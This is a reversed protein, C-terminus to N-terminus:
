NLDIPIGKTDCVRLCAEWNAGRNPVKLLIRNVGKRLRINVIDEDVTLGRAYLKEHVKKDNLWCIVGDNSGIKFIAARDTPMAIETYAYAAQQKKGFIDAFPIIPYITELNIQQWQAMLTDFVESQTLDIVREPFYSTQEAENNKNPFPGAIWWESIFGTKRSLVKKFPLDIANGMEKMKSLVRNVSYRHQSFKAAEFLLKEALEFDKEAALQFALNLYYNSVEQIFHPKEFLPEIEELSEKSGIIALRNLARKINLTDTDHKLVTHYLNLQTLNEDPIKDALQILSHFAAKRELDTGKEMVNKLEQIFPRDSVNELFEHGIIKANTEDFRSASIIMALWPPLPTEIALYFPSDSIKLQSNEPLSRIEGTQDVMHSLILGKGLDIVHAPGSTWVALKVKEEKLFAVVYDNVGGLSLRGIPLYDRLQDILTKMSVYAPKPRYDWNVTGFNHEANDADQGDDHWDYWISVPIHLALHSLWQRAIYKGQLEDSLSTTSYGWEGSLIPITKKGPRYQEILITLINYEDIATEPSLRANRYPHVSVGDVLDLLGQQFCAELFPIDFSSTAPAVICADNDNKRIVPVVMKCWNMYDNFNSHPKWFHDLNPENWLEWIINKDAYRRALAECFRLYAGRGEDSFPALGKDYLPNGYDIIFLLRINRAELDRILQDHNSFDYQGSEHEVSNWSVDMRVIGIGSQELMLWDNKNGQFFHINVGLGQPVTLMQLAAHTKGSRNGTDRKTHCGQITFFALLFIILLGNTHNM